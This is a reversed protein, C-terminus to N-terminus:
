RQKVPSFIIASLHQFSSSSTRCTSIKHSRYKDLAPRGYGVAGKIITILLLVITAFYLFYGGRELTRYDMYCCVCYIIIGTIIGFLQKKFFFSYPVETTYTASFVFMLGLLSLLLM